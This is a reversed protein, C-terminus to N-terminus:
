SASHVKQPWKERKTHLNVSAALHLLPRARCTEDANCNLRTARRAGSWVVAESPVHIISKIHTTTTPRRQYQNAVRLNARAFCRANAAEVLILVTSLQSRRLHLEARDTDSSLPLLSLWRALSLPFILAVNSVLERQTTAAAAALSSSWVLRASVRTWCLLLM